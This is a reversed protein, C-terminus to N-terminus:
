KVPFRPGEPGTPAAPPNTREPIKIGGTSDPFSPISKKLQETLLKQAEGIAYNKIKEQNSKNTLALYGFGITGVATASLVFSAIALGDILKRM